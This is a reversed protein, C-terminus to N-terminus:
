WGRLSASASTRSAHFGEMRAGPDMLCWTEARSRSRPRKYGMWDLLPVSSKPACTRGIPASPISVPSFRLTAVAM